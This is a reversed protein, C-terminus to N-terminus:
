ICIHGKYYQQIKTALSISAFIEVNGDFPFPNLNLNVIHRVSLPKNGSFSVGNFKYYYIKKRARIFLCKNQGTWTNLAAVIQFLENM